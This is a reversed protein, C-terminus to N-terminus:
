ESVDFFSSLDMKSSSLYQNIAYNQLFNNTFNSSTDSNSSTSTDDDDDDDEDGYLADLLKQLTSTETDEASGTQSAGGVGGPGGPGGSRGGPPPGMKGMNAQMEQAQTQIDILIQTLDEESLSEIESTSAEQGSLASDVSALLAQKDELSMSELDAESVTDMTTKINEMKARESEDMGNIKQRMMQLKPDNLMDNKISEVSSTTDNSYNASSFLSNALGLASTNYSQSEVESQQKTQNVYYQQNIGSIRM